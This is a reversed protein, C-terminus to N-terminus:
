QLGWSFTPMSVPPGGVRADCINTGDAVLGEGLQVMRELRGIPTSM